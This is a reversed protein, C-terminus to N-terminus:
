SHGQLVEEDPGSARAARASDGSTTTSFTQSNSAAPQESAKFATNPTTVHNDHNVYREHERHRSGPNSQLFCHRVDNWKESIESSWTTFISNVDNSTDKSIPRTDDTPLLYHGSDTLLLRMYHWKRSTPPASEDEKDNSDGLFALVGNDNHFYNTLIAAHQRRVAPNSLSAPCLSGEGGLVDARFSGHAGALSIPLSVEKLTSEPSGSIGSVSSMKDYRWTVQAAEDSSVCHEMLDRLTESGILGSAAGPDM